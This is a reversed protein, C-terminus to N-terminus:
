SGRYTSYSWPTVLLPVHYRGEPEAVSFRIPVLDLFPPEALAVGRAAYYGGIAFRLEYTGIPLPQGGILPRDTRGDSNTAAKRLLRMEAGGSLEFLEIAVGGAPRGAFTDLVHTSLHGHVPLRDPADIREDLRLAAIRCIEDIATAIEDSRDHRLRREFQGLISARTHRRVCVVFPFGFKDRYAANLRHFTEFEQESLADLGVSSQESASHASLEGARVAKGALDPHARILDLRRDEAQDRVAACMAAHLAALTAFPRRDAVAQAVWPAHEFVDELAAVFSPAGVRNLEDLSIRGM